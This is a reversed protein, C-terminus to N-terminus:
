SHTPAGKRREDQSGGLRPSSSNSLQTPVRGFPSPKPTIPLPNEQGQRM